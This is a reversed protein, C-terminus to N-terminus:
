EMRAHHGRWRGISPTGLSCLWFTPAMRRRGAVQGPHTLTVMTLGDANM